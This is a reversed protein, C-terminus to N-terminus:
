FGLKIGGPLELSPKSTDALKAALEAEEERVQRAQWRAHGPPTWARHCARYGPGDLRSECTGLGSGYAEWLRICRKCAPRYQLTGSCYAAATHRRSVLAGRRPASRATTPVVRTHEVAHHTSSPGVRRMVRPHTAWPATAATPPPRRRAIAPVQAKLKKEMTKYQNVLASQSKSLKVEGDEGTLAIRKERVAKAQM